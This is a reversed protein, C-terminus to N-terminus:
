RKEVGDLYDSLETNLQGVEKSYEKLLGAYQLKAKTELLSIFVLKDALSKDMFKSDYKALMNNIESAAMRTLQESEPTEVKLKYEAGAIRVTIEM